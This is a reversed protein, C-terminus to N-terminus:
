GISGAIAEHQIPSKFLEGLVLSAAGRAWADDGWPDIRIEADNRLGPMVHRAIAQRMPAFLWEGNRTGEGGIIVMGPDFINILNAIQLGLLEGARAFIRRAGEDGAEALAVLEEIRGVPQRLEGRQWAEQAQRLLGPDAILTELCGRGGCACAPGQPDVVIHGFEGAGGGHGRYIQGQVVIGMGVGRGLTIVLFDEMTRATGFWKESLTLTNVDNDVYVPIRLRSQLLDRLPVESWGFIPSHKLVGQRGDVVGALGIGVGLLQKKRVGGAHLLRTILEAIGALVDELTHDPLTVVQKAMVSATLDTLAGILHHETVKVGVVFGGHPNLRLLIPPRGGSSDGEAHELVLNEKILEATIASVTAPSLGTLRAIEARSINGHSKIANLIISRNHARMLDRNGLPAPSM